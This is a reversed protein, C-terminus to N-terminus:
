VALCPLKVLGAHLKRHCHACLVACKDIEPQLYKLGYRHFDSVSYKKEAPNIHHFDMCCPDFRQHCIACPKDRAESIIQLKKQRTPQKLTGDKRKRRCWERQYARKEELNKIPM